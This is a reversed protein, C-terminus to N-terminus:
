SQGSIMKTMIDQKLTYCIMRGIEEGGKRQTVTGNNANVGWADYSVCSTMYTTLPVRSTHLPGSSAGAGLSFLENKSQDLVTFVAQFM